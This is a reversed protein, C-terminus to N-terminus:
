KRFNIQYGSIYGMASWFQEESNKYLDEAEVSLREYINKEIAPAAKEKIVEAVWRHGVINPHSPDWWMDLDFILRDATVPKGSWGLFGPLDIYTGNTENALRRLEKRTRSSSDITWCFDPVIVRVRHERASDIIWDIRQSFRSFYESDQDAKRQDNHGLAMILVSSESVIRDIVDRSVNVLARGSQSYNNFFPMEDSDVLGVGAVNIPSEDLAEIYVARKELFSKGLALVKKAWQTEGQTDIEDVAIGDVYVRFRGGIPNNIWHIQIGSQMNPITISIGSGKSKSMMSFGSPSESSDLSEPDNAIWPGVFRVRALDTSLKEGSGVSVIPIFGYNKDYGIGSQFIRVWLNKNSNIAFAGHSISDGLVAISNKTNARYVEHGVYLCLYILFISIVAFFKRTM